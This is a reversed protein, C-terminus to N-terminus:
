AFEHKNEMAAEIFGVVFLIKTVCVATIVQTRVSSKSWVCTSHITSVFLTGL